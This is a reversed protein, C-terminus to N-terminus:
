WAGDAYGLFGLKGLLSAALAAFLALHTLRAKMM